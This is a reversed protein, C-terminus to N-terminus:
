FGRPFLNQDQKSQQYMKRLLLLFLFPNIKGPRKIVHGHSASEEPREGGEEPKLDLLGDTKKVAEAGVSTDTGLGGTVATHEIM